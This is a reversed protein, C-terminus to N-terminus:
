WQRGNRREGIKTRSNIIAAGSQTARLARVSSASKGASALRCPSIVPAVPVPLVIVRCTIASRKELIPTGTNMASTLPSRPPRACAPSAVALSCCRRAAKPTVSQTGAAKGVVSQSTAPLCPCGTRAVIESKPGIRSARRNFRLSVCAPTSCSVNLIASSLPKNSSSRFSRRAITCYTPSFALVNVVSYPLTEAAEIPAMWRPSSVSSSCPPAANKPSGISSM